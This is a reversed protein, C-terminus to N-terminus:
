GQPIIIKDGVKIKTPEVTPNASQIAGLSVNYKRSIAWMTEGASVTHELTQTKKKTSNTNEIVRYVDKKVKEVLTGTSEGVKNLEPSYAQLERQTPIKVPRGAELAKNKNLKKIVEVDVGVKDAISQYTDGPNVWRYAENKSIKPVEEQVRELATKEEITQIIPAVSQLAAERNKSYKSHLAIAGVAVIHFLLLIFLGAVIKKGLSNSNDDNFEAVANTAAVRYRKQKNAKKTVARLM